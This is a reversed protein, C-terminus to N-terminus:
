ASPVMTVSIQAGQLKVLLSKTQDKEEMWLAANSKFPKKELRISFVTAITKYLRIYYQNATSSCQTKYVHEMFILHNHNPSSPVLSISNFMRTKMTM